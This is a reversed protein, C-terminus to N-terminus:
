LTGAEKEPPIDDKFLGLERIMPQALPMVEHYRPISGDINDCLWDMHLLEDPTFHHYGDNKVSGDQAVIRRHFIDLNGQTLNNRLVDALFRMSEPIKKSFEVDIVGSDMGWWYNMAKQGDNNHDLNGALMTRIVREYFSGWLWCPSALPTLTKDDEVFYTGYEGFEVYNMYPTPVDRNSIVQYGKDIFDKVPDGEQCSWRLDIRARPNTMQAGLAFANISAPVGYVPYSGIYGIRDNNAM